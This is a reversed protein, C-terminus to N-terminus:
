EEDSEEESEDEYEDDSDEEEDEDDDDEEEEESEDELEEDDEEEDEEFAFQLKAAKAAEKEAETMYLAAYSEEMDFNLIAQQPAPLLSAVIGPPNMMMYFLIKSWMKVPRAQLIFCMPAGWLMLTRGM